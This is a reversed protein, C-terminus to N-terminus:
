KFDIRVFGNEIKQDIAERKTGSPLEVILSLRFPVQLTDDEVFEIHPRVSNGSSGGSDVPRGVHSGDVGTIGTAARRLEEVKEANKLTIRIGAVGVAESPHTTSEKSAPVRRERPTLDHCFFPVVGRQVGETNTVPFTVKWEMEVGDPRTRGGKIPQQYRVVSGAKEIRANLADVDFDNVNPSTLAFDVIGFPKDWWHGNRKQPDDEVFAILELYTGDSFIVLKNETRGDVHRGGPSVRFNETVWNPPDVIDKYPLLLVFHDAQFELSM